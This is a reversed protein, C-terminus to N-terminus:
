KSEEAPRRSLPQVKLLDATYTAIGFNESGIFALFTARTARPQITASTKRDPQPCTTERIGVEVGLGTGPAVNEGGATDVGARVGVGAGYM